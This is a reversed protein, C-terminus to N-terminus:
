YALGARLLVNPDPRFIMATPEQYRIERDFAVGVEFLGTMGGPRIFELGLAVRLDNYDISDNVFGGGFSRRVTWAGGGYEGRVYAWWEVSGFNSLRTALKPNPFLTNNTKDSSFMCGVNGEIDTFVGDM